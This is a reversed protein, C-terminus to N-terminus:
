NAYSLKVPHISKADIMTAHSTGADVATDYIVPLKWQQTLGGRIVLESLLGIVWMGTALTTIIAACMGATTGHGMVLGFGFVVIAKALLGFALANMFHAPRQAYKRLFGITLMDSFGRIFREVGYKSYGFRRPHHQVVIEAVEYGMMGTISPVMRHLEGHLTMNRALEGRYCKFGCNHDHLRVGSVRSLMKNFVRSPLVKHWPDHREKKWGSVLGYGEHLKEIFRPIEKPDDQLDADMTFVIEGRSARFGATLGAAKGSNSRFQLGRVHKPYDKMLGVIRKWSGDTSGDDVFVIEFEYDSPTYKAIGACLEDLTEEENMVPIVFSVLPKTSVCDDSPQTALVQGLEEQSLSFQSRAQELETLTAIM